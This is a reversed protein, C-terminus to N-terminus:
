ATFDASWSLDFGISRSCDLYWCFWFKLALVKVVLILSFVLMVHMNQLFFPWVRWLHRLILSFGTSSLTLNTCSSFNHKPQRLIPWLELSQVDLLTHSKHPFRWGVQRCWSRPFFSWSCPSLFWCDSVISIFCAVELRSSCCKCKM